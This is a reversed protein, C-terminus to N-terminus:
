ERITMHVFGAATHVLAHWVDSDCLASLCAGYRYLVAQARTLQLSRDLCSQAFMAFTYIVRSQSSISVTVACQDLCLDLRVTMVDEPLLAFYSTANARRERLVGGGIRDIASCPSYLARNPCALLSCLTLDHLCVCLICCLLVCCLLVFYKVASVICCTHMTCFCAFHQLARVIVSRAHSVCPQIWLAQQSSLRIRSLQHSASAARLELSPSLSIVSM